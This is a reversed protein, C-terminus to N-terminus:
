RGRIDVKLCRDALDTRVPVLREDLVAPYLRALALQGGTGVVFEICRACQEVRDGAVLLGVDLGHRCALEDLDGNREVVLAVDVTRSRANPHRDRRRVAGLRHPGETLRNGLPVAVTEIAKELDIGDLRMSGTMGPTCTGVDRGAHGLRRLSGHLGYWGITFLTALWYPLGSLACILPIDPLTRPGIARLGNPVDRDLRRVVDADNDIVKVSGHGERWTTQLQLESCRRVRIRRTGVHTLVALGM